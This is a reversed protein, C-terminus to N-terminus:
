HAHDSNYTHEKCAPAAPKPGGAKSRGRSYGAYYGIFGAGIAAQLAFLLTSMDAGPPPSISQFWPTYGPALTQIAATAQDDSGKFQEARTGDPGAPLQKVVALPFLALSAVAAIMLGNKLRVSMM